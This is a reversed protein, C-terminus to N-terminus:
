NEDVKVFRVKQELVMVQAVDEETLTRSTPKLKFCTSCM